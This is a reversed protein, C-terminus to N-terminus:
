RAQADIRGVPSLEIGAATAWRALHVESPARCVWMARADPESHLVYRHEVAIEPFRQAALRVAAGFQTSTVEGVDCLFRPM